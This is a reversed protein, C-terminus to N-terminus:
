GTDIFVLIDYNLIRVFTMRNNINGLDCAYFFM